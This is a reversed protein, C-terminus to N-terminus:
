KRLEAGLERTLAELVADRAVDAEERTLTRDAARFIMSFAVSKKGHSIQKGRFESLFTVSELIGIRGAEIVRRIDAWRVVDDVVVALDRDIEPFRPLETFCTRPKAARMVRGFDIEAVTVNTKLDYRAVIKESVAGLYGLMEGDLILAVAEALFDLKAEETTVADVLGFRALLTEVVGKMTRFDVDAVLGLMLREDPLEGKGKPLYVHALEFLRVDRNRRTQNLRRAGLLSPILSTRLGPQDRDIPNRVEIPAADTWPAILRTSEVDTFSFTVCEHFDAATLIDAARRESTLHDDRRAMRYPVDARAPIGDYGYCRAVEEILDIERELDPRFSPVRVVLRLGEASVTELGLAELIRRCRDAEIPVGLIKPIRDMRLTLERPRFPEVDVDVMGRSVKGGCIESMLAAARRSGWEVGVPDVGRAFRYSSDSEIVLRHSTRRINVPKFRASELLVTTTRTSVETDLGGMIGAIAVPRVADCIMLEGGDLPHRSGDIATISEGKAAKRVIIRHAALKDYDFAHLPQGCEFLVFNTIDVVNNVPRLGMAEIKAVLWAPSPGVKVDTIVRATYRPCLEADLVEVSALKAVPEGEEVLHVVPIELRDGSAAAIERAVGIHSLWDPRNTTVETLLFWDGSATEVNEVELGVRTLIEAIRGADLETKVYEKLWKL